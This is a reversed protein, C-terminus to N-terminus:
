TTSAWTAPWGKQYEKCWRTQSTSKHRVNSHGTSAPRILSKLPWADVWASGLRVLHRRSLYHHFLRVARTQSRPRPKSSPWLRHHGLLKDIKGSPVAVSYMMREGAQRIVRCLLNKWPQMTRTRISHVRKPRPQARVQNQARLARFITTSSPPYTIQRAVHTLRQQLLLRMVLLSSTGLYRRLGWLRRLNWGLQTRGRRPNRDLPM